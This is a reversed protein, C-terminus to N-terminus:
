QNKFYEIFKSIKENNGSYRECISNIKNKDKYYSFPALYFEKLLEKTEVRESDSLLGLEQCKKSLARTYHFFCGIPKASKFIQKLANILGM